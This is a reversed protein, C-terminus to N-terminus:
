EKVEKKGYVREMAERTVLWTSGSKRCDVGKIIKDTNVLKRLTSDALGWKETAESFTMIEEIIEKEEANIKELTYFNNGILQNIKYNINDEFIVKNIINFIDEYYVEFAIFTTKFRIKYEIRKERKLAREYVNIFIYSEENNGNFSGKLELTCRLDKEKLVELLENQKNELYERITNRISM